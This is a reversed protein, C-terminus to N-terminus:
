LVRAVGRAPYQLRGLYLGQRTMSEYKDPLGSAPSWAGPFAIGCRLRVEVQLASVRLRVASEILKRGAEAVAPDASHRASQGMRVLVAANGSVATVYGLAARLRQRQVTRFQRPSLNSRLFEEEAPSTLNRFAQADVSVIQKRLDDASRVQAAHGLAGRVLLLLGVVAFVVILLMITM